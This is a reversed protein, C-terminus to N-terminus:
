PTVLEALPDGDYAFPSQWTGLGPLSRDRESLSPVMDGLPWAIAMEPDDWAFGADAEPAYYNSAKYAVETNESLTLFGHGFGTPVYLQEGRAATLEAGVWRAYTPSGARLDVAVDWIAGVLCRVIKAQAYPPVQFHVGRLTGRAASMSHNDQVWDEDIGLEALKCRNYSETFWGRSDGHRAPLLLRPIPM